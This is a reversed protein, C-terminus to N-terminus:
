NRYHHHPPNISMRTKRVEPYQRLSTTLNIFEGGGGLKIRNMCQQAGWQHLQEANPRDPSISPLTVGLDCSFHLFGSKRFPLGFYVGAQIGASDGPRAHGYIMWSMAGMNGMGPILEEKISSGSWEAMM